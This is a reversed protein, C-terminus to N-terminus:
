FNLGFGIPVLSRNTLRTLGIKQQIADRDLLGEVLQEMLNEDVCREDCFGCSEALVKLRAM